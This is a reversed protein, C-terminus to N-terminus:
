GLSPFFHQMWETCIWGGHVGLCSVSGLKILRDYCKAISFMSLIRGGAKHRCRRADFCYFILTVVWIQEELEKKRAVNGYHM